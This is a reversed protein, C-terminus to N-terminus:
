GQMAGLASFMAEEAPTCGSNQMMSWVEENRPQTYPKEMQYIKVKGLLTKGAALAALAGEQTFDVSIDETELANMVIKEEQCHFVRIAQPMRHQLYQIKGVVKDLVIDSFQVILEEVRSPNETKMGEWDEAPISQSALYLVFDRELHGLEELTLRRYKM